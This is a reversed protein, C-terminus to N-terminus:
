VDFNKPKRLIAWLGDGFGAEEIARQLTPLEKQILKFLRTKSENQTYGLITTFDLGRTVIDVVALNMKRALFEVGKRTYVTIHKDGDLHRDALDPHDRLFSTTLSDFQPVMFVLSGGPTLHKLISTLVAIPDTLHELVGWMTILDFQERPLKATEIPENLVPVGFLERSRQSAYQNFEIGVVNWGHEKYVALNEGFGSGIDLLTKQGHTSLRKTVWRYKGTAIVDKRFGITDEILHKFM